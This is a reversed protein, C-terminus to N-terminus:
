SKKPPMFSEIVAMGGLKQIEEATAERVFGCTDCIVASLTIISWPGHQKCPEKNYIPCHAPSSESKQVMPYM